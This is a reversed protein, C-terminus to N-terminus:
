GGQLLSTSCEYFDPARISQHPTTIVNTIVASESGSEAPRSPYTIFFTMKATSSVASARNRIKGFKDQPKQDEGPIEPVPM